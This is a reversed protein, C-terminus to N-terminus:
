KVWFTKFLQPTLVTPAQLASRSFYGPPGASSSVNFQFSSFPNRVPGLGTTECTTRICHGHAAKYTNLQVMRASPHAVRVEPNLTPSTLQVNGQSHAIRVMTPNRLSFCSIGWVPFNLTQPKGYVMFLLNGPNPLLLTEAESVQFPYPYRM